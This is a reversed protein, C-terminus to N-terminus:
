DTSLGAFLVICGTDPVTTGVFRIASRNRLQLFHSPPQRHRFCCYFSGAGCLLDFTDREEEDLFGDCFLDTLFVFGYEQDRNRPVKHVLIGHNNLRAIFVIPPHIQPHRVTRLLSRYGTYSTHFICHHILLQCSEVTSNKKQNLKLGTLRYRRWRYGPDDAM